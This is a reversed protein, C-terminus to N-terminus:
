LDLTDLDQTLEAAANKLKKSPPEVIDNSSNHEEITLNTYDIQFQITEGCRGGLRNKLIECNLQGSMTDGVDPMNPKYLSAMFDVNAPIAISESTNEM